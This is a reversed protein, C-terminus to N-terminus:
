DFSDFINKRSVNHFNAKKDIVWVSTNDAIPIRIVRAKFYDNNPTKISVEQGLRLNKRFMWLEFWQFGIRIVIVFVIIVIITFPQRNSLAIIPLAIVLIMIIKEFTLKM